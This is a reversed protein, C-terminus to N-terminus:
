LNQNQECKKEPSRILELIKKHKIIIQFQSFPQDKESRKKPNSFLLKVLNSILQKLTILKKKHIFYFFKKLAPNM